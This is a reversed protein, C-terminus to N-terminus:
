YPHCAIFLYVLSCSWTLSDSASHFFCLPPHPCFSSSSCTPHPSTTGLKSHTTLAQSRLGSHHSPAVHLDPASHQLCLDPLVFRPSQPAFFKDCTFFSVVATVLAHYTLTVTTSSLASLHAAELGRSTECAM